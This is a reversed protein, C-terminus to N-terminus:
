QQDSPEGCVECIDDHDCTRYDYYCHGTISGSCDGYFDVRLFELPIGTHESLARRLAHEAEGNARQALDAAQKSERCRQRAAIVQDRM